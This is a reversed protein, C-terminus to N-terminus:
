WEPYGFARRGAPGLLAGRQVWGNCAILEHDACSERYAWDVDCEVKCESTPKIGSELDALVDVMIGPEKAYEWWAYVERPMGRSSLIYLYLGGANDEYVEYKITSM